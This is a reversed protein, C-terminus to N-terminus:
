LASAKLGLKLSQCPGEIGLNAKRDTRDQGNLGFRLFIPETFKPQSTFATLSFARAPNLDSTNM